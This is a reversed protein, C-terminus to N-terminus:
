FAARPAALREMAPRRMRYTSWGSQLEAGVSEYFRMAPANWDLVEWEIRGCGREMGLQALRRILASGVGQSRREPKVYLDELFIGVEARFTSYIPFFVALGAIEGDCEALLVEAAPRVGFLTERLREATASVAHALNEYEALRRVLEFIVPIDSEAAARVLM